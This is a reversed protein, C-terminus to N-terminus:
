LPTAFIYHVSICNAKRHFNLFYKRHLYSLSYRRFQLHKRQNIPGDSTRSNVGLKVSYATCYTAYLCGNKLHLIITFVFDSNSFSFYFYELNFYDTFVCQKPNNTTFFSLTITYIRLNKVAISINAMKSFFVGNLDFLKGFHCKRYTKGVACRAQNPWGYMGM